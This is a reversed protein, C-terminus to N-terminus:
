SNALKGMPERFAKGDIEYIQDCNDLTSVRHAVMVITLDRSLEGIAQMLADETASDLASTAEDFILTHAQKYLARAIGVRQRQGGSLRVGREGVYTAFGSPLSDIYSLIQAQEAVSRLREQDIDEAAVGLAINQAITTDALFISQPVHAIARQWALRREMAAQGSITAGDVTVEGETPDLLGLLLDIATSKGSGTTGVLGVRQGKRIRLSANQLVWPSDDTYRFSVNQFVISDEFPLAPPFSLSETPLPQELLKVVAALDASSSRLKSVAAFCIQLSPLLRQAGLALSGIVPLATSIGGRHAVIFYALIALSVMGIAQFVYAPFEGLFTAQASLRRLPVDNERYRRLHFRQSQDLLVDRIGGLGEQVTQILAQQRDAQRSSIQLMRQRTVTSLFFYSSGFLLIAFSATVFDIAFLTFVIGVVVIASVILNLLPILSLQILRNVHTAIGTIVTSSSRQVHVQYPQYLTRRYAEQSLDSGIGAAVRGSVWLNTLRVIATMVHRDLRVALTIPFVLESASTIGFFNASRRIWDQQWLHELDALAGLFPVVAAITFIEAVGTALM